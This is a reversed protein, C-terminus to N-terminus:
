AQRSLTWIHLKETASLCNTSPPFDSPTTTLKQPTVTDRQHRHHLHQRCRHHRSRAAEARTTMTVPAATEVGMIPPPM